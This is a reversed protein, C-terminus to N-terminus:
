CILKCIISPFTNSHEINDEEDFCNGIYIWQKLWGQTETFIKVRKLWLYVESGIRSLWRAPRLESALPGISPGHSCASIWADAQDRKASGPLLPIGKPGIVLRFPFISRTALYPSVDQKIYPIDSTVISKQRDQSHSCNNSDCGGPYNKSGPALPPELMNWGYNSYIYFYYIVCCTLLYKQKNQEQHSSTGKWSRQLPFQGRHATTSAAYTANGLPSYLVM